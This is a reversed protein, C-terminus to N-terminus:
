KLGTAREACDRFRDSFLHKVVFSKLALIELKRDICHHLVRLFVDNLPSSHIIEQHNDGDETQEQSGTSAVGIEISGQVRGYHFPFGLCPKFFVPPFRASFRRPKKPPLSPHIGSNRSSFGSKRKKIKRGILALNNQIKILFAFQVIIRIRIALVRLTFEEGLLKPIHGRTVHSPLHKRRPDFRFEVIQSAHVIQNPTLNINARGRFLGQSGSGLEEKLPCCRRM